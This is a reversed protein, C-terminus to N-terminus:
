YPQRICRASAHHVSDQLNVWGGESRRGGEADRVSKGGERLGHSFSQLAASQPPPTVLGPDGGGGVRLAKKSILQTVVTIIFARRDHM